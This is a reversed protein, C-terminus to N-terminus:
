NLNEINTSLSNRNSREIAPISPTILYVKGLKIDPNTLLQERLTLNKYFEKSMIISQRYVKSVTKCFGITYDEGFVSMPADTILTYLDTDRAGQRASIIAMITALKILIINGTNLQLLVNGQEDVLEPMYNKENSLEKLRIIGRSSMNGQTMEQYHKNAENELVQVLGSFVRKRTTHAIQHFENIVKVKELLYAPIEGIVLKSLDAEIKALEDKRREIISTNSVVENSSRIRLENQANFENLLNTAQSVNLAADVILSNKEAEIRSLEDTLTKRRKDLKRLRRYTSAIDDDINKITHSLGLGNQYLKKFDSSFNHSSIEEDALTKIELTSRDILEKMKLWPISGLPAERDCVLCRENDLMHQVHIPEPVDIPLRAQLEKFLVKENEIKVQIQAQKQLKIQEFQNYKISYENFLNETGKLVWKSTFMKKHLNKQEEDFEDQVDNLNSEISKRKAEIERIKQADALKNLLNESKEEATALNDKIQLDQLEIAKIRQLLDQRKLELDESKGRDGSLDRQKKNFEKTTSEKLSEAVDIINDYRTINSLVNIAQTLTDNKNFDIISEVQEGQFWMYPKINDPLITKKIREIQLNDKVERAKLYSIEKEWIIEESDIDEIIKNETKRVSYRRELIYISDKEINHFTLTVSATITGEEIEQIAKDSILLRKLLNSNRFKKISTDFCQDYMVWYFADYLKSKGYGNDGIIVNLGETFEFKNSGAYCMFNNLEISQLIM